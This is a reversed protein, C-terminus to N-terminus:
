DGSQQNCGRTPDGHGAGRHSAGVMVIASVARMLPRSVHHPHELTQIQAIRLPGLDLANELGVFRIALGQTLAGLCQALLHGFEVRHSRVVAGLGLHQRVLRRFQFALLYQM